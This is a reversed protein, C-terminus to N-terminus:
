IHFNRSKYLLHYTVSQLIPYFSVVSPVIWNLHNYDIQNFGDFGVILNVCFIVVLLQITFIIAFLHSIRPAYKAPIKKYPNMWYRISGFMCIALIIGIAVVYYIFNDIFTLPAINKNYCILFTIGLLVLEIFFVIWNRVMKIKNTELFTKSAEPAKTQKYYPKVSIGSNEFNSKLTALDKPANNTTVVGSITQDVMLEKRSGDDNFAMSNLSGAIESLKKKTDSDTYAVDVHHSSDYVSTLDNENVDNTQPTFSPLSEDLENDVYDVDFNNAEHNNLIENNTTQEASFNTFTYSNDNEDLTNTNDDDIQKSFDMVIEDGDSSYKDTFSNYADKTSYSDDNEQNFYTIDSYPNTEQAQLDDGNTKTESEDTQYVNEDYFSPSTQKQEQQNDTYENNFLYSYDSPREDEIASVSDNDETEDSEEQVNSFYTLDDSDNDEFVSDDFVRNAMEESEEINVQNDSDQDVSMDVDENSADSYKEKDPNYESYKGVTFKALFEDEQSLSASTTVNNTEESQEVDESKVANEEDSSDNYDVSDDEAVFYSKSQDQKDYHGLLALIDDNEDENGSEQKKNNFAYCSGDFNDNFPLTADEVTEYGNLEAQDKPALLDDKNLEEGNDQKEIEEDLKNFIMTNSKDEGGFDDAIVDIHDGQSNSLNDNMDDSLNPNLLSDIIIRSRKWDEQNKEYAKKGEDTLKYYHRRGGIDSDEWYSSILGQSELRKLCSYLTPQKLEYTGNSRAEVENCIEYGYKDGEQLINLIITDIHGRILDSDIGQM